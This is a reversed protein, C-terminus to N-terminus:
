EHAPNTRSYFVALRKRYDIKEQTWHAPEKRAFIANEIRVLMQDCDDGPDHQHEIKVMFALEDIVDCWKAREAAVAETVATDRDRVAAEYASALAIAARALQMSTPTVRWQIVNTADARLAALDLPPTDSPM